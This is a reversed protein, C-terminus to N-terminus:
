VKLKQYGSISLIADLKGLTYFYIREIMDLLIKQM